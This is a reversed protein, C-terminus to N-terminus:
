PLWRPDMEHYPCDECHRGGNIPGGCMVRKCIRRMAAEQASVQDRDALGWGNTPYHRLLKKVDRKHLKGGPMMYTELAEGVLRIANIRESHITM